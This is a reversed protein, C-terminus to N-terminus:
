MEVDPEAVPETGPVLREDTLEDIGVLQSECEFLHSVNERLFVL